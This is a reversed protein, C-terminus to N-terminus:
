VALGAQIVADTVGQQQFNQRLMQEFTLKPNQAAQQGNIQGQPLTGSANPRNHAALFQQNAQQQATQVGNQQARALLIDREVMAKAMQAIAAQNQMGQGLMQAVYGRFLQGAQSLEPRGTRQYAPGYVYQGNQDRQYLWHAEQDLLQQAQVQTQYQGLHQQVVQMAVQQAVEEIGPRIATIPDFAFKDLFQQQHEVARLYKDVLDAPAGEVPVLRGTAEDRKLKGRWSPDFEPANWWRAQQQQQWAALQQQQALWAQFQGQHQAYLQAYPALGQLQQAQQYAQALHSLTAHDDPLHSFDYGQQRLYDRVGLAAPAAPPTSAVGPASAGPTVAPSPVQSPTSEPAPAPAAAPAAGGQTQQGSQIDDPM